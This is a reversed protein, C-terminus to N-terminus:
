GYVHGFFGPLSCHPKKSLSRNQFCVVTYFHAPYRYQYFQQRYAITAMCVFLMPRKQPDPFYIVGFASLVANTTSTDFTVGKIYDGTNLFYKQMQGQYTYPNIAHTDLFIAALNGASFLANIIFFV